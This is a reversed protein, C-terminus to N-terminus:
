SGETSRVLNASLQWLKRADAANRARRSPKELVPPGAIVFRPGWFQGGRVDPDTVARLMPLAGAAVPPCVTMAAAAFRNFASLHGIEKGLDTYTFGPHAAVAVADSPGAAFQRQLELTFLLNAVKSQCYAGWRRYRREGMLDDFRLRGAHHAVSSMTAVRCGPTAELVPRLRQTLAFAGLHNVGFQTEFGDETSSHDIAMLGANNILLDLRDHEAVFWDTFAAVSALSALDLSAVEVHAGPVQARIGDAASEAKGGNRCALVVTAGHQALRTAVELGLGTNAGTVVAVRGGQDPILAANWSPQESM